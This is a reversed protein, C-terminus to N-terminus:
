SFDYQDFNWTTIMFRLFLQVYGLVWNIFTLVNFLVFM